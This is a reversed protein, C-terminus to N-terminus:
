KSADELYKFINYQVVLLTYRNKPSLNTQLLTNVKDSVIPFRTLLAAQGSKNELTTFIDSLSKDLSTRKQYYPALATDDIKKQVVTKKYRYSLLRVKKLTDTGTDNKAILSIKAIFDNVLQESFDVSVVTELNQKLIKEEQDLLTLTQTHNKEELLSNNLRTELLQTFNARYALLETKYGAILKDNLVSLTNGTSYATMIGGLVSNVSWLQSDLKSIDALLSGSGSIDLSQINGTSDYIRSHLSKELIIANEVDKTIRILEEDQGFNKDLYENWKNMIDEIYARLETEQKKLRE